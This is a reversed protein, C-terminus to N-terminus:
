SPRYRKLLAERKEEPLIFPYKLAFAKDVLIMSTPNFTKVSGYSRVTFHDFVYEQDFVDCKVEIKRHANSKWKKYFCSVVYSSHFLDPLELTAYWEHGFSRIDLFVTDGPAVLEIPKSNLEKVERAAEAAKFILPLLPTHNRCFEEYQITQFLDDSFPEWSISGDSYEIEFEMTTRTLPDGRYAIFRRIEYQDNDLRALAIAEERTGHFLKL